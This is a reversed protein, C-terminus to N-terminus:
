KNHGSYWCMLKPARLSLAYHKPYAFYLNAFLLQTISKSQNAVVMQEEEEEATEQAIEEYDRELGAIDERAESFGGSEIGEGVLWHVFGRKRYLADFEKAVIRLNGAFGTSNVLNCVAKSPTGLSSNEVKVPGKPTIGCKVGCPSYDTFQILSSKRVHNLASMVDASTVEGRYLLNSSVLKEQHKLCSLMSSTPQFTAETIEEISHKTKLLTLPTYATRIFHIRPYPVLNTCMESLNTNLTGLFRQPLTISSVIQAVLENVDKYTPSEVNLYNQCLGYLSENDYLLSIDTHELLSHMSLTVNFVSVIGEKLHPSPYIFAGFKNKKGYEISLRELVLCMLGSNGGLLSSTIIFGQLSDCNEAMKRTSNLAEDIIGRGITSYGRCWNDACDEKMNMFNSPSYITRFSGNKICDIVTPETDLFIARPICKRTRTEEFLPSVNNELTLEPYGEYSIDHEKCFLEWFSQGMQIGCQGTHFFLIEKM